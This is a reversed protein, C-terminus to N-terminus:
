AHNRDERENRKGGNARDGDQNGLVHVASEADNSKAKWEEIRPVVDNVKKEVSSDGRRDINLREKRRERRLKLNALDPDPVYVNDNWGPPVRLFPREDSDNTPQVDDGPGSQTEPRNSATCIDEALTIRHKGEPGFSDVVSQPCDSDGHYAKGDMGDSM